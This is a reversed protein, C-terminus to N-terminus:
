APAPNAPPTQSHVPGTKGLKIWLRICLLYVILYALGLVNLNIELRSFGKWFLRDLFPGLYFWIFPNLLLLHRNPKSSGLRALAIRITPVAVMVLFELGLGLAQHRYHILANRRMPLQDVAFGVFTFYSLILWFISRGWKDSFKLWENERETLHQKRFRRAAARADGLERLAKSQADAESLGGERHAEVAEAYHAEIEVRIREKSADTLKRTAIELWESLTQVQRKRFLNM